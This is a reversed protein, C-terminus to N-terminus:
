NYTSVGFEEMFHNNPQIWQQSIGKISEVKMFVSIKMCPLQIFQSKSRQGKHERSLFLEKRGM